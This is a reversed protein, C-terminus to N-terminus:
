FWGILAIMRGAHKGNRRYSFFKSDYCYTCENIITILKEKCGIDLLQKKAWNQLDVEFKGSDKLFYFGPDFQSIVDDRVEFCCSHISPGILIHFDSLRLTMRNLEKKINPIIGNALGRWGAHVLGLLPDFHHVFFIPLCDAVRISCVLETNNSFIGDLNKIYGPKDIVSVNSSHTQQPIILSSPRFGTLKAFYEQDNSGNPNFSAHSFVAKVKKGVFINSYDSWARLLM